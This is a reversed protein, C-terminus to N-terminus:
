EGSVSQLTSAPAPPPPMKATAASQPHATLTLNMRPIAPEAFRRYPQRKAIRRRLRTSCTEGLRYLAREPNGQQSRAPDVRSFPIHKPGSLRRLKRNVRNASCNRRAVIRWRRANTNPANTMNKSASPRPCPPQHQKDHETDDYGQQMCSHNKSQRWQQHPHTLLNRARKSPRLPRASKAVTGPNTSISGCPATSGRCQWGLKIFEPRENTKSGDGANREHHRPKASLIAVAGIHSKMVNTPKNSSDRAAVISAPAPSRSRIQRRRPRVPDGQEANKGFGGQQHHHKNEHENGAIRRNIADGLIEGRPCNPMETDIPNASAAIRATANVSVPRMGTSLGAPCRSSPITCSAM